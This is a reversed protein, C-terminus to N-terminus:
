VDPQFVITSNIRYMTDSADMYAYLCGEMGINLAFRDVVMAMEYADDGALVTSRVANPIGISFNGM